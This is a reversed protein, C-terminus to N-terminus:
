GNTVVELGEIIGCHLIFFLAELKKTLVHM